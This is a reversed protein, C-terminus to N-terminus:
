TGYMIIVLANDVVGFASSPLGSLPKSVNGAVSMMLVAISAAKTQNDPHHFDACWTITPLRRIGNGVRHVAM